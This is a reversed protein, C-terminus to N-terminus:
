SRNDLTDENLQLIDNISMVADSMWEWSFNRDNSMASINIATGRDVADHYEAVPCVYTNDLWEAPVGDIKFGVVITSISYTNNVTGRLRIPLKRIKDFGLNNLTILYDLQDGSLNEDREYSITYGFKELEDLIESSTFMHYSIGDKKSLMSGHGEVMGAFVTGYKDHDLRIIKCSLDKDNINICHIHLERDNNSLCQSIEDWSSIRYRLTKM